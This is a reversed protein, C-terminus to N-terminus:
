GEQVPAVGAGAQTPQVGSAILWRTIRGVASQLEHAMDTLREKEVRCMDATLRTEAEQCVIEGAHKFEALLVLRLQVQTVRTLEQLINLEDM